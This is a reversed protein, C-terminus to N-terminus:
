KNLHPIKLASFTVALLYRLQRHLQLTLLGCQETIVVSETFLSLFFLLVCFCTMFTHSMCKHTYKQRQVFM